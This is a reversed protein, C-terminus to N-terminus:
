FNGKIKGWRKNDKARLNNVALGGGRQLRKKQQVSSKKYHRTPEMKKISDESKCM